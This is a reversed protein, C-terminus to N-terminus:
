IKQAKPIASEQGAIHHTHKEDCNLPHAPSKLGRGQNRHFASTALAAVFTEEVTVYAVLM